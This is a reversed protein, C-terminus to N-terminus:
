LHASWSRLNHTTVTVSEEADLAHIGRCGIVNWGRMVM